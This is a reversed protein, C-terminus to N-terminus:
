VYQQTRSTDTVCKDNSQMVKIVAKIKGENGENCGLKTATRLSRLAHNDLTRPQSYNATAANQRTREMDYIYLFNAIKIIM